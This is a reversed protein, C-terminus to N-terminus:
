TLYTIKWNGEEEKMDNFFQNLQTLMLPTLFITASMDDLEVIFTIALINLMVGGVSFRESLIIGATAQAALFPIIYCRVRQVIYILQAPIRSKLSMSTNRKLANRLIGM